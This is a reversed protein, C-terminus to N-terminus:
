LTIFQKVEQYLVRGLPNDEDIKELVGLRHKLWKAGKDHEALITTLAGTIYGFIFVGVVQTIM